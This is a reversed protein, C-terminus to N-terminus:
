SNETANKHSDAASAYPLETLALRSKARGRPPVDCNQAPFAM